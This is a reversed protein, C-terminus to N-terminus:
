GRLKRPDHDKITLNSYRDEPLNFEGPSGDKWLFNISLYGNTIDYKCKPYVRSEWGGKMKCNFKLYFWTDEVTVEESYRKAVKDIVEKDSKFLNFM